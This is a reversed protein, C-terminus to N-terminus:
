KGHILKQRLAGVESQLNFYTLVVFLLTASMVGMGLGSFVWTLTVLWNSLDGTVTTNVFGVIAFALAAAALSTLLYVTFLWGHVAHLREAIREKIEEPLSSSKVLLQDTEGLKEVISSAASKAQM